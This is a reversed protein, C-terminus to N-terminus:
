SQGYMTKGPAPLDATLISGSESETMFLRNGKFAVNTVFRGVLPDIFHTPRLLADFRWCGMGAHAVILGGDADLALGDPGALGGSLQVAVGVKTVGGDIALPVRWVANARTVAVFLVNEHLNLV